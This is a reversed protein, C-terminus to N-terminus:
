AAPFNGSAILDTLRIMLLHSDLPSPDFGIKEYFTRAEDTLAHVTMGRIGIANAAQIVRM